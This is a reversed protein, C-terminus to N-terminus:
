VDLSLYVVKEFSKLPKQQTGLDSLASSYTGIPEQTFRSMIIIITMM